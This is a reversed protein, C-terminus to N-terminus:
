PVRHQGVYRTCRCGTDWRMDFGLEAADHRSPSFYTAPIIPSEYRRGMRQIAAMASDLTLDRGVARLGAALFWGSDCKSLALSAANTSSFRQGTRKRMVEFCRRTASNAYKQGASSRLDLSPLWGLGVSGNLQKNDIVGADFLAQAGTASNMAIRPYYNQGRASQAFFLTLSGNADLMVVHTVGNSRFKLTANQVDAATNAADAQSSAVRVSYVNAPDVPHGARALAPLLVSHLPRSWTGRDVSLVGLKPQAPGPQGTASNWGSFYGLRRLSTVQDAMMRDQTMTGLQFLAPYKQLYRRDPDIITGSSVQLVGARAMCADFNETLGGGLLAFVHHDETFHSCAAQDQNERTDSSQADYAYYIPKLKRGNIGGHANIDDIVAQSDAREDGRTIASAGIAANAEEGNSTYTIGVQIASSTLGRPNRAALRAGRQSAGSSSEGPLGGQGATVQGGSAAGAKPAGLGNDAAAAPGGPVGPGLGQGPGGGPGGVQQVTSGCAALALVVPVIAVRGWWGSRQVQVKM